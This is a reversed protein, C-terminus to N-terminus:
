DFRVTAGKILGGCVVGTVPKGTASRARFTRAFDDSEACTSPFPYGGLHIDTLGVAELARTARDAPMACGAVLVACLLSTAAKLTNAM